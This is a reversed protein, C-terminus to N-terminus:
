MVNKKDLLKLVHIEVLLFIPAHVMGSICETIPNSNTVIVGLVDRKLIAAEGILLLSHRSTLYISYTAGAAKVQVFLFITNVSPFYLKLNHEYGINITTAM